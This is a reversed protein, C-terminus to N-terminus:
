HVNTYRNPPQNRAPVLERLMQLLVNCSQRLLTVTDTAGLIEDESWALWKTAECMDTFTDIKRSLKASAAGITILPRATILPKDAPARDGNAKWRGAEKYAEHVSM